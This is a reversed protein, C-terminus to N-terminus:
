VHPPRSPRRPPTCAAPPASRSRRPAARPAKGRHTRWAGAPVCGGGGTGRRRSQPATPQPAASADPATRAPATRVRCCWGCCRQDHCRQDRCRQDRCRQDHCRQDRCRQDRCRQDRCRQDHCRQDHCRRGLCHWVCCRRGCRGSELGDRAWAPVRSPSVQGYQREAAPRRAAARKGRLGDRRDGRRHDHGATACPGDRRRRSGARRLSSSPM